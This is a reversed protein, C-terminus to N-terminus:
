TGSRHHMDARGTKSQADPDKGEEAAKEIESNLEGGILVAASTFYLWILLMAVASLGSYIRDYSHFLDFYFRVLLASGIWLVLAVVAGPTSWRWKRDSLNPGFRYFLAFALLLLVAIVPWAILRFVIGSNSRGEFHRVIIQTLQTGYLIIALSILSLILIALTLGFVTFGIKWSTRREQVEYATNLGSTMAWTGNLTAWIAALGATIAGIGEHARADLEYITKEIVEASRQPMIQRLADTLTHRVASGLEPSKVLLFMLLLLSPFIALFHYFALRAAQGFVADQWSERWTRKLLERWSLGGRTWLDVM